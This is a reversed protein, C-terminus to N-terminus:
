PKMRANRRGLAGTPNERGGLRPRGARRDTELPRRGPPRTAKAATRSVAAASSRRPLVLLAVVMAALTYATVFWQLQSESANLSTSLTPLALNLVTQGLGIAMVGLVLAGLAWWRHSIVATSPDRRTVLQAM